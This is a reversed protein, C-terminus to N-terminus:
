TRHDTDAAPGISRGDRVNYVPVAVPPTKKGNTRGWMMVATPTVLVMRYIDINTNVSM